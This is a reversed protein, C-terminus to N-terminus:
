LLLCGVAVAATLWGATQDVIHITRQVGSSARRLHIGDQHGQRPKPVPLLLLDLQERSDPLQPLFGGAEWRALPAMKTESHERHRYREVFFHQLRADLEPLSLSP